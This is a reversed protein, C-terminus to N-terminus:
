FLPKTLYAPITLRPLPTYNLRSVHSGVWDIAGRRGFVENRHLVDFAHTTITVARENYLLYM